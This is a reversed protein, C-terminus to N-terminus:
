ALVRGQAKTTFFPDFIRDMIEPPIGHGQDTVTLLVFDGRMSKAAYSFSEELHCNRAQITLTGGDPMADRANVALNVIVQSLETPDALVQRLDAAIETKLAITKPLSHGLIEQVKSWLM